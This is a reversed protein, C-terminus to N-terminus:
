RIKWLFVIQAEWHAIVIGNWKYVFTTYLQKQPKLFANETLKVKVVLDRVNDFLYM